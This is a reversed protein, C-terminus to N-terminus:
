YKYNNHNTKESRRVSSQHVRYGPSWDPEQKREGKSMKLGKYDERQKSEETQVTEYFGKGGEQIEDAESDHEYGRTMDEGFLPLGIM